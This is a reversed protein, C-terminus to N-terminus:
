FPDLMLTSDDTEQYRFREFNRQYWCGFQEFVDQGFYCELADGTSTITLPKTNDLSKIFDCLFEEGYTEYLFTILATGYQYPAKKNIDDTLDSEFLERANTATISDQIIGTGYEYSEYYIPYSSMERCIMDGYVEAVGENFILSNSRLNRFLLLHVIEHTLVSIGYEDTNYYPAFITIGNVTTEAKRATNEKSQFHIRIQYKKDSVGSWDTSKDDEPFITADVYSVDTEPFFNLNTKEQSKELLLEVTDIISYPVTVGEDFLLVYNDTEYYSAQTITISTDSDFVDSNLEVPISLAKHEASTKTSTSITVDEPTNRSCGAFISSILITVLVLGTISKLYRM